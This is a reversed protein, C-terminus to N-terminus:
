DTLRPPLDLVERAQDAVQEISAISAITELKLFLQEEETKLETDRTLLTRLADLITVQMADRVTQKEAQTTV